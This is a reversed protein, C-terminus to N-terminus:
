HSKGAFLFGSLSLGAKVVITLADNPGTLSKPYSLYEGGAFFTNGVGEIFCNLWYGMILNSTATDAPQWVTVPTGEAVLNGDKDLYPNLSMWGVNLQGYGNYVPEVIASQMTALGLQPSNVFLGMTWLPTGFQNRLMRQVNWELLALTPVFM